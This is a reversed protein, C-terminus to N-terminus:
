SLSALVEFATAHVRDLDEDTHALSVYLKTSMPNVFVGGAFLGLSLAMAKARDAWFTSRYDVVPQDTFSIAALPGDGLVQATMDVAALIERFGERLKKGIAFFQEYTGPQRLENLTALAAV